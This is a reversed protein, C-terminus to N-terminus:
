PSVQLLERLLKTSINLVASIWLVSKYDKGLVKIIDDHLKRKAEIIMGSNVSLFTRLSKSIDEDFPSIKQSACVVLVRWHRAVSEADICAKAAPRYSDRLIEACADFKGPNAMLTQAIRDNYQQRWIFKDIITPTTQQDKPIKPVRSSPTFRKKIVNHPIHGYSSGECRFFCKSNRLEKKVGNLSINYGFIYLLQHRLEILPLPRENLISALLDHLDEAPL